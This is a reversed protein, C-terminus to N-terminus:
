ARRCTTRHDVVGNQPALASTSPSRRCAMRSWRACEFSISATPWSPASTERVPIASGCQRSATMTEIGITVPPPLACYLREVADGGHALEQEVVDGTTTDLVALQKRSHLNCGVLTM